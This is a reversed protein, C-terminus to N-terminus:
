GKRPLEVLDLWYTKFQRIMEVFDSNEAPKRIYSSVGLDYSQLIDEDAASTTLVIVPIRKLVPDAKILGLATKGNMRPMNLDLLILQPFPYKIDDNYEGKRQLYDLLEQGDKVWYLPNLIKNEEFALKTLLYDDENDEAIVIAVSRQNQANQSRELPM